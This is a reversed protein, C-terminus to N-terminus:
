GPEKKNSKGPINQLIYLFPLLFLFHFFVRERYNGTTNNYQNSHKSKYHYYCGPHLVFFLLWFLASLPALLPASSHSKKKNCLFNRM